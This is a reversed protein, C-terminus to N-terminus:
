AFSQTLPMAANRFRSCLMNLLDMIYPDVCKSVGWAGVAYVTFSSM